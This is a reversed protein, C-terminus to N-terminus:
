NEEVVVYQGTANIDAIQVKIARESIITLTYPVPTWGDPDVITRAEYIKVKANYQSDTHPLTLDAKRGNLFTQGHPTLEFAESLVLAVGNVRPAADKSKFCVQVGNLCNSPFAISAAGAQCSLSITGGTTTITACKPDDTCTM